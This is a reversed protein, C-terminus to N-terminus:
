VLVYVRERCSARGIKFNSPFNALDNPIVCWGQMGVKKKWPLSDDDKDMFNAFDITTLPVKSVMKDMYEEQFELDNLLISLTIPSITCISSNM